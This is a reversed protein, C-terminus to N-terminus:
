EEGGQTVACFRKHANVAQMTCFPKGSATATAGCVDCVFHKSKKQAPETSAQANSQRAQPIAIAQALAALAVVLESSIALLTCWAIDWGPKLLAALESKRLELVMGPVLIIALLTLLAFWGVLLWTALKLRKREQYVHWVYVTAVATSIGFAPGTLAEVPLGLFSSEVFSLAAALRPASVLLAAIIILTPLQATVQQRNPKM